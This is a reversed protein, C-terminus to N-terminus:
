NGFGTAGTDSLNLKQALTFALDASKWRQRGARGAEVTTLTVTQGSLSGASFVIEFRNAGALFKVAGQLGGSLLSGNAKVQRVTGNGRVRLIKDVQGDQKFTYYGTCVGLSDCSPALNNIFAQESRQNFSQGTLTQLIDSVDNTARNIRRSQMYQLDAQTLINQAGIAVNFAFNAATASDLPETYIANVGGNDKRFEFYLQYMSDLQVLGISDAQEFNQARAGVIGVLLCVVIIALIDWWTTQNTKREM